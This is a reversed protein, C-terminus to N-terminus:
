GEQEVVYLVRAPDGRRPATVATLADYGGAVRALRVAAGEEPVVLAAALVALLLAFVGPRRVPGRYRIM